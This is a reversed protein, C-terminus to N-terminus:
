DTYSQTVTAGNNLTGNGTETTCSTLAPTTSTQTGTFDIIATGTSTVVQLFPGGTISSASAM